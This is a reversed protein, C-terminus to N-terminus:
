GVLSNWNNFIEFAFQEDASVFKVYNRSLNIDLARSSCLPLTLTPPMDIFLRCNALSM